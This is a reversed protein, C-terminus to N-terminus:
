CRLSVFKPTCTQYSDQKDKILITESGDFRQCNDDAEEKPTRKYITNDRTYKADPNQKTLLSYCMCMNLIFGCTAGLNNVVMMDSGGNHLLQTTLVLIVFYIGATVFGLIEVYTVELSQFRAYNIHELHCWWIFLFVLNTYGWLSCNISIHHEVLNQFHRFDLNSDFSDIEKFITSEGIWMDGM